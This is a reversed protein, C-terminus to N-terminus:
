YKLSPAIVNGARTWIDRKSAGIRNSLFKRTDHNGALNHLGINGTCEIVQQKIPVIKTFTQIGPMSWVLPPPPLKDWSGACRLIYHIHVWKQRMARRASGLKQSKKLQWSFFFDSVSYFFLERTKCQDNELFSFFIFFFFFLFFSLFFFNFFFFFFFLFSSLFFFFLMASPKKPM